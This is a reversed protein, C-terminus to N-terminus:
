DVKLDPRDVDGLHTLRYSKGTPIHHAYVDIEKESQSVIWDPDNSWTQNDFTEGPPAPVRAVLDGNEWNWLLLEHHDGKLSSVLSGDPPLGASCGRAIKRSTGDRLNFARVQYGLGGPGKVTAALRAADSSIDIEFFEYGEVVTRLEGHELDYAKVEKGNTFLVEKGSPSVNVARPQEVSCLVREKKAEIDVYLLEHGRLCAIARRGPLWRPYTCGSPAILVPEPQQNSVLYIGDPREFVTELIVGADTPEAAISVTPPTTGKAAVQDRASLWWTALSSLAM